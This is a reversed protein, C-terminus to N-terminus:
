KKKRKLDVMDTELFRKGACKANFEDSLRAQEVAIEAMRDKREGHQRVLENSEEVKLNYAEIKADDGAQIETQLLDMEVRKAQVQKLLANGAKVEANYLGIQRNIENRSDVCLKLEPKDMMPAPKKGAAYAPLALVTFSLALLFRLM